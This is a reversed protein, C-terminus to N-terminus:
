GAPSGPGSQRTGSLRIAIRLAFWIVAAAFAVIIIWFNRPLTPSAGRQNIAFLLQAIAILFGLTATVIWLVQARLFTVTKQRREPALWYAANPVNLYRPPLRDILASMALGLVFVLAEVSGFLAFFAQKGSWGNPDGYFGFHVVMVEPMRPFYRLMQLGAAIAVLILVVRPTDSDRMM